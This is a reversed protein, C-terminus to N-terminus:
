NQNPKRLPAGSYENFEQPESVGARFLRMSFPASQGSPGTARWWMPLSKFAFVMDYDTAISGADIPQTGSRDQFWRSWDASGPAPSCIYPDSPKGDPCTKFPPGDPNPNPYSPLLFSLMKHQTVSWEAPSHCSMCSSNPANKMVTQGVQIDNRAGDNPGSLRGGWGLTQTSYKPAAPNIWNERLPPPPVRSSDAGPDNGWMAGLPVMKDWGDGPANTDYVLTSFVWGTKPSSATDKVIIDFQMVAGTIVAPPPTPKASSPISLYLPWQPAGSAAAWWNTQQKPDDSVFVAAKVIVAGEDFQFNATEIEPKMATAKWVRYLSHAAREDYYTLVHTDFTVKLGTDPFIDPGFQGAPYTGHISERVSGLWPENYWGAKKADWNAYDLILKRAAPGVYEKLAAVYAAANTTTILGGGIAKSWPPNKIPPLPRSPWDHSLTFMPGSYQGAPPIQGNNAVFPDKPIALAEPGATFPRPQQAYAVAPVIASLGCIVTSICLDRFM